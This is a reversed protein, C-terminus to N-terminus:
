LLMFLKLIGFHLGETMPFDEMHVDYPAGLRSHHLYWGNERLGKIWTETLLADGSYWFPVTLDAHWLRMIWALTILCLVVAGGYVALVRLGRALFPSPQM